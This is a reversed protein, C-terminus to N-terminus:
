TAISQEASQKPDYKTEYKTVHCLRSPGDDFLAKTIISFVAPTIHMCACNFAGRVPSVVSGVTPWLRQFRHCWRGACCVLICLPLMIRKISIKHVPEAAKTWQRLGRRVGYKGSLFISQIGSEPGASDTYDSCLSWLNDPHETQYPTRYGYERLFM